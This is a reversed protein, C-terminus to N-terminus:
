RRISTKSSKTLLYMEAAALQMDDAWNDEEYFYPSVTCATQCVGPNAMGKRYAYAAKLAINKKFIRSLIKGFGQALHSPLLINKGPAGTRHKPKQIAAIGTSFPQLFLGSPCQRGGWGYDVKQESPITMGVHDRDDALQNFYTLSDPNMKVLWDLGWKAEDLIDPIGNSSPDGNADFNDGFSEPHQTYAFLMQYVANASYNCVRLYDSADHRGGTTNYYKGDRKGEPDGVHSAM